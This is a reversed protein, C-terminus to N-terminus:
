TPEKLIKPPPFSFKIKSDQPSHNKENPTLVNDVVHDKKPNCNDRVGNIMLLFFIIVLIFPSSDEFM